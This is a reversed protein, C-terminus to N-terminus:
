SEEPPTMYEGDTPELLKSHEDNAPALYNGPTMPQSLAQDSHDNETTDPPLNYTSGIHSQTESGTSDFSDSQSWLLTKLVINLHRGFLLNVNNQFSWQNVFTEESSLSEQLCLLSWIWNQWKWSANPM